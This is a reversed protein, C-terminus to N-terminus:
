KKINKKVKLDLLERIKPDHLILFGDVFLINDVGHKKKKKLDKLFINM